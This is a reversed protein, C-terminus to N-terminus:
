WCVALAALIGVFVLAVERKSAFSNHTQPQVNEMNEGAGMAPDYLIDTAGAPFTITATTFSASNGYKSKLQSYFDQNAIAAPTSPTYAIEASQTVGEAVVEESLSFYVQSTGNFSIISRGSASFTVNGTGVGLVLRIKNTKAVYPWSKISIVSEFTKPGVVTNAQNLIGVVTSGIYTLSVSFNGFGSPPVGTLTVYRLNPGTTNSSTLSWFLGAKPSPFIADRLSQTQVVVGAANVEEIAQYVTGVYGSSLAVATSNVFQSPTNASINWNVASQFYSVFAFPLTGINISIAGAILDQL